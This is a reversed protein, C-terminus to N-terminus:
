PKDDQRNEEDEALLADAIRGACSALDMPTAHDTWTADALIGGIAAAKYYQRMTMGWAIPHNEAIAPFASNNASM